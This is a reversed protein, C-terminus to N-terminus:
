AAPTITWKAIKEHNRGNDDDLRWGVKRLVPAWRRLKFTVDRPNTPWSRPVAGGPVSSQAAQLLEAATGHFPESIVSVLMLVFPDGSLSEMADRRQQDLYWELGHSGTVADVADVIRAFDAMRPRRLLSPRTELNKLVHRTLDLLAGLLSPRENWWAEALEAEDRRRDDGIAELRVTVIRDALDGALLGPDIGTLLVVRRFAFTALDGNTYLRRRIDGEGTVARCLADSLWEPVGSLNDLAVFWSGSAATIWTNDDRPPKRIPVPGPDLLEVITRMATTKGAGQQGFIGLIPHPVDPILACVLFALVLSRDQEDMPAWKWLADLESWSAEVPWPLPGTLTTRKFLVPGRDAISWGDQDVRVARHDAGGLDLWSADSSRAVRLFRRRPESRRCYGELTAVADAVASKPAARGTLDFYESALTGRVETDLSASVLHSGKRVVFAQDETDIGLDYRDRAIKVLLTAAHRETPAQADDSQGDQDLGKDAAGNM